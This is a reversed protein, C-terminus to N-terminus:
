PLFRNAPMDRHTKQQTQRDACREAPQEVRFANGRRLHMQEGAGGHQAREKDQGVRHGSRRGITSTQDKTRQRAQQHPQNAAEAAIRVADGKGHQQSVNRYRQDVVVRARANVSM